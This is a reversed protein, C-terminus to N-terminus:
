VPALEQKISNFKYSYKKENIAFAFYTAIILTGGALAFPLTYSGTLQYLEGTLLVAFAGGIQHAGNILGNIAGLNKLGYVDATISSTMAPTSLWSMGAVVAFVWLGVTGGILLLLLYAMGRVAYTVSLINKQSFKQTLAGAFLVGFLNIAMMVGFISAAMVRSVGEGEAFPVFHVGMMTTTMGCVVYSISLQWFPASKLAEKANETFYQGSIDTIENGSKDTLKESDPLAGGPSDKMFMVALPTAIFLIIIGLTLFGTEWGSMEVIYASMPAFFVAGLSAGAASISNALARRKVFWKSLMTHITVFSIGGTAVSAIFGHLILFTLYEAEISLSFIHLTCDKCPIPNSSMLGMAATSLGLVILSGSIVIRAGVRDQLYGIFVFSIAGFFIGFSLIRTIEARTWNLDAEMPTVFVGLSQRVGFVSMILFTSVALVLWGYYFKGSRKDQKLFDTM